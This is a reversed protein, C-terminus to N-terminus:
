ASSPMRSLSTVPTRVHARGIEALHEVLAILDRGYIDWGTMKKPEAAFTSLGHGRADWAYVDFQAALPSLLPDYTRGNFGNAHAWHLVPRESVENQWQYLSLSGANEHPLSIQHHQLM